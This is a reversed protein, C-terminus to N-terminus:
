KLPGFFVPLSTFFTLVVCKLKEKEVKKVRLETWRITLELSAALTEEFTVTSFVSFQAPAVGSKPPGDAWFNRPDSGGEGLRQLGRKVLTLSLGPSERGGRDL